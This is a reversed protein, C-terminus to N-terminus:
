DILRACVVNWRKYKACTTCVIAPRAHMRMWARVAIIAHCSMINITRCQMPDRMGSSPNLIRANWNLIRM